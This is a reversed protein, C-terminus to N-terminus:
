APAFWPRALSVRPPWALRFTGDDWDLNDNAHTDRQKQFSWRRAARAADLAAVRRQRRKHALLTAEVAPVWHNHLGRSHLCWTLDVLAAGLDRYTADFGGVERLHQARVVICGEGLAALHQALSARGFYGGRHARAGLAMTTQGDRGGILRGNGIVRGRKSLLKAGVAGAGPLCAQAVLRRLWDDAHFHCRSDHIAIVDSRTGAIARNCAEAISMEDTASAVVINAEPYDTRRLSEICDELRRAGSTDAVILTVSPAPEPLRYNPRYWGLTNADVDCAIGSRAFHDALARRGAERAYPKAAGSNSTSGAHLRWHYLVHPIHM